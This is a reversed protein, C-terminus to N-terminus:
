SCGFAEAEVYPDSMVTVADTWFDRHCKINALAKRPNLMFESYPVGAHRRLSMLLTPLQGSGAWLGEKLRELSTM